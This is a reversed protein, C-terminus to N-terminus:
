SLRISSPESEAEELAAQCEVQNIGRQKARGLAGDAQSLLVELSQRGNSIVVGVCASMSIPGQDTEVGLSAVAQLLHHATAQAVSADTDRLLVAFEDGNLRALLAGSGLSTQACAALRQLARDGAENGFRENIRKFGDVNFVLLALYGTQRALSRLEQAGREYFARRNLLGTLNDTSTLIAIQDMLEQRQQLAGCLSRNASELAQNVAALQSHRDVELAAQLQRSESLMRSQRDCYDLLWAVEACNPEIESRSKLAIGTLQVPGVLKLLPKALWSGCRYGILGATAICALGLMTIRSQLLTISAFAQDARQRVVIQWDLGKFEHLGKTLTVSTLYEFNDPWGLVQAAVGPSKQLVALTQPIASSAGPPTLLARGGKDLIFLEVPVWRARVIEASSSTIDSLSKWFLHAGLVGRIVGAEDRVPMAIDIFRVSQDPSNPMGLLKTLLAAEHVDGVYSDRLGNTFWPRIGVNVGEMVQSTAFRVVGDMDAYGIWALDPYHIQMKELLKRGDAPSRGPENIQRLTTMARLDVFRDYVTRDLADRIQVATVALDNGVEERMEEEVAQILAMGLGSSILLGLLAFAISM